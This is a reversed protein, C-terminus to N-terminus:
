CFTSVNIRMIIRATDLQYIRVNFFDIMLESEITIQSLSPYIEVGNSSRFYVQAFKIHVHGWFQCLSMIVSGLEALISPHCKPPFVSLESQRMNFRCTRKGDAMCHKLMDGMSTDM